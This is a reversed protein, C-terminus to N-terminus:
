ELGLLKRKNTIKATRNQRYMSRMAAYYDFSNAKMDDIVEFVSNRMDLVSAGLYTYSAWELDDHKFYWVLPDAFMSAISGVADRPNSPGLLPLVLYPGDGIGWVAFTEGLDADRKELGLPTAVDMIGLVGFTSNLLFRGVTILAGEGDGQLINNALIYPSKLNGLVDSVRHRGPEPIAHRYVATAPRLVVTDVADNFAFFVRNTPELPDNLEEFEAVAEPDDDPPPTACGALFVLATAAVCGRLYKGFGGPSSIMMIVSGQLFKLVCTSVLLYDELRKILCGGSSALKELQLKDFFRTKTVVGKRIM